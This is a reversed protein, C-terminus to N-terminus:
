TVAKTIKNSTTTAVRKIRGWSFIAILVLLAGGIIFGLRMLNNPDRVWAIADLLPTLGPILNTIPNDAVTTTGTNVPEGVNAPATANFSVHVHDFHNATRSGRDEMGRWERGPFWIRQEWIIYKIGLRSANVTCYGAIANGKASDRYTMFDLALGLPHDSVYTRSAFGYITTVGYREGIEYAATKVHPKVPGLLYAM